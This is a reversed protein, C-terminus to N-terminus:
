RAPRFRGAALNTSSQARDHATARTGGSNTRGTRTGNTRRPPTANTRGTAATNTRRTPTANARATPTRAAVNYSLGPRVIGIVEHRNSKSMLRYPGNSPRTVQRENEAQLRSREETEWRKASKRWEPQVAVSRRTERERSRAPPQGAVRESPVPQPVRGTTERRQTRRDQREASHDFAAIPATGRWAFAQM